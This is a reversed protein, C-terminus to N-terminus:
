WREPWGVLYTVPLAWRAARLTSAEWRYGAGLGATLKLLEAPTYARACSVLGDFAVVMPVAPLLYTWALRAWSVRGMFPTVLPVLLPHLAALTFLEPRRAVVEFVAIGEGRRVADALLARARTPAFHHFSSFITRFGGLEEPPRAADVPEPHYAIHATRAPGAAPDGPPRAPLSYAALRAAAGRNPYLDTLTVRPALGHRALDALLGPWPGGAGSALDIVRDGGSAVLARALIPTVARYPKALAILLQLYDTAADRVAPPCWPQDEIEFLQRRPM